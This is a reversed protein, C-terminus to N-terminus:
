KISPEGGVTKFRHKGWAMLPREVCYYSIAALALTAPLSIALALLSMSPTSWLEPWLLVLARMVQFHWLYIGFSVHGLWVFVKSGLWRWERTPERLSFVLLAIASAVMPTWVVLIWHGTWYVENLSLQWQMLGLLLVVGCGCLRRRAWIPLVGPLFNMSFGLMFTFLVGILSDLVPLTVLYTDVNASLFIWSRWSLTILLASLLMVRWDVSRSILGLLPLIAYFGLEVPLTWWVLNLPEVMVPPLNVRLLFQFPLTDYGAQTILGPIAGAVLLLVLLEAWVAPYIRLFRRLWFRRLFQTSSGNAIVQAGLLWGSLIFFLPVGMWGFGIYITPDLLTQAPFHQQLWHGGAPFHQEWHFLLVAVAAFGRLSHLVPSFTDFQQQVAM